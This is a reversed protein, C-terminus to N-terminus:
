IFMDIFCLGPAGNGGPRAGADGFNAAGGGGAGFGLGPSGNNPASGFRGGAGYPSSAGTGGLSLGPNPLGSSFGPEGPAGPSSFTAATIPPVGGLGSLVTGIFEDGRRVQSGGRGGPASFLPTGDILVRTVTGDGGTTGLVGVGGDGIEIDTILQALAATRNFMRLSGAGGGGGASCQTSSTSDAGGGAGGGGIITFAFRTVMSTDTGSGFADNSDFTQTSTIYVRGLYADRNVREDLDITNDRLFVNLDVATLIESVAFTKPPIFTM